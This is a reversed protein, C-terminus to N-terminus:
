QVASCLYWVRTCLVSWCTNRLRDKYVSSHVFHLLHVDGTATLVQFMHVIWQMDGLISVKAGWLFRILRIWYLFPLKIHRHLKLCTRIMQRVICWRHVGCRPISFWSTFHDEASFTFISLHYPQRWPFQKRNATFTLWRPSRLIYNQLQLLLILRQQWGNGNRKASLSALM